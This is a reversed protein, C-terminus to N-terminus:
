AIVDLNEGLGEIASAISDNITNQMTMAAQQQILAATQDLVKTILQGMVAQASLSQSLAALEM